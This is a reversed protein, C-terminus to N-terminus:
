NEEDGAAFMLTPVVVANLWRTMRKAMTADLERPLLLYVDSGPMILKQFDEPATAIASESPTITSTSSKTPAGAGPEGERGEVELSKQASGIGAGAVRVYELSEKVDKLFSKAAKETYGMHRVLNAIVTADSALDFGPYKEEIRLYEKPMRLLRSLTEEAEGAQTPLFLSKAAESLRLTQGAGYDILGFKRLASLLPRSGGNLGAYGLHRAAVALDITAFKDAKYLTRAAEAARKLSVAPYAPSRNKSQTKSGTVSQETAM